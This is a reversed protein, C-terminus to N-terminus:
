PLETLGGSAVIPEAINLPPALASEPEATEPFILKNLKTREAVAAAHGPSDETNLATMFDKDRDLLALKQRAEAPSMIFDRGLGRGIMDDEKFYRGAKAFAIVMRPDNGYGTEDMAKRLEAGGLHEIGLAALELNQEYADKWEKRLIDHTAAKTTENAAQISELAAQNRDVDYRIIRKAQADTLGIEHAITNFTGVEEDNLAVGEPLGDPLQYGSASEPCGIATYFARRVEDTAERGPIAVKDAGIMAESSIYGQALAGISDFKQLSQHERLTEDLGVRWEGAVPPTAPIELPAAPAAPAPPPDATVSTPIPDAM